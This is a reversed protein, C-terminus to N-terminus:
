KRRLNLHQRRVANESDRECVRYVNDGSLTKEKLLKRAVAEIKTWHKKVLADCDAAYEEITRADDGLQRRAYSICSRDGSSIHGRWTEGEEKLYEAEAVGGALCMVIEAHWDLRRECAPNGFADVGSLDAIPKTYAGRAWVKGIGQHAPTYSVHGGGRKDAITVFAVPLRLALGIVAHGAEHHALRSRWREERDRATWDKAPYYNGDRDRKIEGAAELQRLARGVRMRIARSPKPEPGSYEDWIMWTYADRLDAARMPAVSERLRELIYRQLKGPGRSM